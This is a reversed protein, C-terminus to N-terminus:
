PKHSIGQLPVKFTLTVKELDFTSVDYQQEGVNGYGGGVIKDEQM